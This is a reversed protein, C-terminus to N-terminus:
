RHELWLHMSLQRCLGCVLCQLWVIGVASFGSIRELLSLFPIPACSQVEETSTWPLYPDSQFCCFEKVIQCMVARGQGCACPSMHDLTKPCTSDGASEAIFDGFRLAEFYIPQHSHIVRDWLAPCCPHYPVGLALLTAQNPVYVCMVPLFIIHAYLLYLCRRYMCFCVNNCTYILHIRFHSDGGDWCVRM